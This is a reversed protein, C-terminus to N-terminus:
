STHFVFYYLGPLRCTFRGSTTNYDHNTNTIAHNFVVPVNKVPHERTQRTVSFASQFKHRYSGPMGPAGPTGMPGPVGPPGGFGRPGPKGSPGPTGPEGPEGKAGKLGDRGDKGPLGPMGPLGPIG